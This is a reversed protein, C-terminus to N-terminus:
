VYVLEALELATTKDETRQEEQRYKLAEKRKIAQRKQLYEELSIMEQNRGKNSQRM